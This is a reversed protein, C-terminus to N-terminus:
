FKAVKAASTVVSGISSLIKALREATSEFDISQASGSGAYGSASSGSLVPAGGQSYALIPNIGAKKMDSVAVQYADSRQSRIFERNLEAQDAEFAMANRAQEAQFERDVQAASAAYANNSGQSPFAGTLNTIKNGSTPLLPPLLPM